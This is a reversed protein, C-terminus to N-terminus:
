VKRFLTILPKEMLPRTSVVHRLSHFLFNWFKLIHIIHHRNKEPPHSSFFWSFLYSVRGPSPSSIMVPLHFPPKPNTFNGANDPPTYAWPTISNHRIFKTVEPNTSHFLSSPSLTHNFHSVLPASAGLSRPLYHCYAPNPPGLPSLFHPLLSIYIGFDVFTGIYIYSVQDPFVVMRRWRCDLWLCYYLGCAKKMPMLFLSISATPSPNICRLM